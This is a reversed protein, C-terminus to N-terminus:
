IYAAVIHAHIRIISVILSHSYSTVLVYYHSSHHYCHCPWCSCYHSIATLHWSIYLELCHALSLLKKLCFTPARINCILVNQWVLVIVILAEVVRDVYVKCQLPENKAVRRCLGKEELFWEIIALFVNKSGKREELAHGHCWLFNLKWKMSVMYTKIRPTKKSFALRIYGIIPGLIM